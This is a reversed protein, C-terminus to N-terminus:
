GEVRKRSAQKAQNSDIVSKRDEAAYGTMRTGRVNDCEHPGEIAPDGGRGTCFSREDGIGSGLADGISIDPIVM